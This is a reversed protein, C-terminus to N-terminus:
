RRVAKESSKRHRKPPRHHASGENKQTGRDGSQGHNRSEANQQKAAPPLFPLSACLAFHKARNSAAVHLAYGSLLGVLCRRVPAVPKAQFRNTMDMQEQTTALPM